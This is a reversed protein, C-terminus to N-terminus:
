DDEDIDQEFNDGSNNSDNSDDTDTELEYDEDEDVEQLDMNLITAQYAENEEMEIPEAELRQQQINQATAKDLFYFDDDNKGGAYDPGM